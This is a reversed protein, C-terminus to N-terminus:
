TTKKLIILFIQPQKEEKIKQQPSSKLKSKNDKLKSANHITIFNQSSAKNQKKTRQQSTQRHSM